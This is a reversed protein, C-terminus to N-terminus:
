LFTTWSSSITQCWHARAWRAGGGRILELHHPRPNLIWQTHTHSIDLGSAKIPSYVKNRDM